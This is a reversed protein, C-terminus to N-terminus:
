YNLFILNLGVLYQSVFFARLAEFKAPNAKELVFVAAACEM